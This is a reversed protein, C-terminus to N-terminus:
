EQLLAWGGDPQQCAVSGAASATIQGATFNQRYERCQRGDALRFTAVATVTGEIRGEGAIWDMSEGDGIISLAVSYTRAVIALDEDTLLSIIREDIGPGILSDRLRKAEAAADAFRRKEAAAELAAIERARREIEETQRQAEAARADMIGALITMLGDHGPVAELGRRAYETAEDLRGQDRLGAALVKYRDAVQELGAMAETNEPDLDLAQNFAEVANQGPPLMLRDNRLHDWALALLGAAPDVPQPPQAPPPPEVPDDPVVATIPPPIAGPPEFPLGVEVVPADNQREVLMTTQNAQITVTREIPGGEAAIAVTFTGSPLEVPAGGVTGSAIVVQDADTVAFPAGLSAQLSARLAEADQAPFYTGGALEALEELRRAIRTEGIAFGVVDMFFKFGNDQLTRIVTEPYLSHSADAGHCDDEGDTVLIIKREGAVGAFDDSVQSLTYGIATMSQGRGREQRLVAQRLTPADAPGITVELRTALCGAREGDIRDPGDPEFGFTRMGVLVHAPIEGVVTALINKAVEMRTQGNVVGPVPPCPPDGDMRVLPCGMSGSVDFIFEIVSPTATVLAGGEDKVRLSGHGHEAKASFRYSSPREIAQARIRSYLDNLDSADPAFQYAGGWAAALDFLMEEVSHGEGADRYDLGDGLAITYIPVGSRSVAAWMQAPPKESSTDAGDTLLIVVRNGQTGVANLGEIIGDRMPTAGDATVHVDILTNLICQEPDEAEACVALADEDLDEHGLEKVGVGFRVLHITERPGAGNVYTHLAQKLAEISGSMSGSNDFVLAVNAPPQAFRLWYRNEPVVWTWRGNNAAIGAPRLSRIANGTSDILEVDTRIRDGYDIAVSLANFPADGLGLDFVDIDGPQMVAGMTADAAALNAAALDDNKEQECPGDGPDCRAVPPAGDGRRATAAAADAHELISVYDAARGEFVRFGSLSVYEGGHNSLVRLMLYRARVPEAFAFTQSGAFPDLIAQTALAVEEFGTVPSTRSVLVQFEAVNEEAESIPIADLVVSEILAEAGRAFAFVVDETLKPDALRESKVSWVTAPDLDILGGITLRNESTYRVIRGGLDARAIDVAPVDDIIGGVEPGEAEFVLLEGLAPADGGRTTLVRLRVFRAEIPPFRATLIDGTAPLLFKGVSTFSDDDPEDAISVLIEFMRIRADDPSYLNAVRSDLAVADIRAPRNEHFAVVVEYSAGEAPQWGPTGTMFGDILNEVAWTDTWGAGAVVHGGREQWALNSRGLVGSRELPVAESLALLSGPERTDLVVIERFGVPDERTTSLVRLMIRRAPEPPFELQQWIDEPRLVWRGISSFDTGTAQTSRLVEVTLPYSFIYGGGPNLLIANPRALAGDLFGFVIEQPLNEDAASWYWDDDILYELDMSNTPALVTGGAIMAAVNEDMRQPEADTVLGALAGALVSPVGPVVLEPVVIEGIGIREDTFSTLFRIELRAAQVRDFTLRQFTEEQRMLFRGVREPEAGVTGRIWLEVELPYTFNLSPLPRIYVENFWAARDDFFGLTFSQPTANDVAWWEELPDGDILARSNEPNTPQEEILGGNGAAAINAAWIQDPLESVLEAFAGTHIPEVGPVHAEFVAIEAVGIREETFASTFRLRVQHARVREFEFEQAVTEPTLEFRGVLTFAGGQPAEAVWVEFSRPYTLNYEPDPHISVADLTAARGDFFSLVIDQPLAPEVAWWDTEPFGDILAAAAEVNSTVSVVRGGMTAAALNRREPEPLIAPAFAMVEGLVPKGDRHVGLITLRIYRAQRGEFRLAQLAQANELAFTGVSDFGAAAGQISVAVEILSPMSGRQWHWPYVLVEGIETEQGLELVLVPPATPDFDDAAKWGDQLAGDILRAAATENSSVFAVRGGAAAVNLRDTYATQDDVAIGAGDQALTVGSPTVVIAWAVLLQARLLRRGSKMFM